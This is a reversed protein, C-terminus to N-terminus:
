TYDPPPVTYNRAWRPGKMLILPVNQAGHFNFLLVVSAKTDVDDVVGACHASPRTRSIIGTGSM